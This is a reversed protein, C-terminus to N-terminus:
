YQKAYEGTLLEKVVNEERDIKNKKRYYDSDRTERSVSEWNIRPAKLEACMKKFKKFRSCGMNFIMDILAEKRVNNVLSLNTGLFKILFKVAAYIYKDLRKQAEEKTIKFTKPNCIYKFWNLCSLTTGYGVTLHGNDWYPKEVFLEYSIIRRKLCALDIGNKKCVMDLDTENM